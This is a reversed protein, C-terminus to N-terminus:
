PATATAPGPLAGAGPKVSNDPQPVAIPAVVVQTVGQSKTLGIQDAAKQPLDLIRNDVFPGRDEVTVTTTKGSELNTVKAITGLPLTKSAAATQNTDFRRGDAMRRGNFRPAYVSAAGEEKRGSHNVVVRHGHLPPLPPEKALARAERQVQPSSADFPVAQAPPPTAAAACRLALMATALMTAGLIAVGQMAVAQNTLGTPHM